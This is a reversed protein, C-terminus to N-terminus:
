SQVPAPALTDPIVVPESPLNIPGTQVAVAPKQPIDAIKPASTPSNRGSSGLAHALLGPVIWAALNIASPPVGVKDGWFWTLTACIGIIWHTLYQYM